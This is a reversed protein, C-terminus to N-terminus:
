SVPGIMEPLDGDDNPNFKGADERYLYDRGVDPHRIFLGEANLYFLKYPLSRRDRLAEPLGSLELPNGVVSPKLFLVEGSRRTPRSSLRFRQWAWAM